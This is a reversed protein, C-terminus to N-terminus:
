ILSPRGPSPVPDLLSSNGCWQIKSLSTVCTLERGIVTDFVHYFLKNTKPECNWLTKKKWCKNPQRAKLLSAYWQQLAHHFMYTRKMVPFHHLFSALVRCEGEPYEKRRMRRMFWLGILLNLTMRSVLGQGCHGKHAYLTFAIYWLMKKALNALILSNLYVAPLWCSM